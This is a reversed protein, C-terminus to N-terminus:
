RKFDVFPLKDSIKVEHFLTSKPYPIDLKKLKVFTPSQEFIREAGGFKSGQNQNLYTLVSTHGMRRDRARYFAKKSALHPGSM